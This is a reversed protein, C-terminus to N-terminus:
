SLRIRRESVVRGLRSFTIEKKKPHKHRYANKISLQMDEEKLHLLLKNINFVTLLNQEKKYNVKREKQRKIKDRYEEKEQYNRTISLIM